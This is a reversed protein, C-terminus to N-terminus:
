AAATRLKRMEEALVWLGRNLKVNGDIGEVGRTHARGRGRKRIGGRVLNEQARQFTTWLSDDKDDWRRPEIAQDARIPPEKETGFRVALAARAFATQEGTTLIASKMADKQEDIKDFSKMVEFAGEIVEDQVNGSHKVRIDFSSDGCIAGNACVFRFCGALMQYSSSGDHSNILIIENVDGDRAIQDVHRLRLMHKTYEAKGETRCKGQIAFFPRFGNDRLGNVVDITPIYAYRQSRSEHPANAFVSPAFRMLEDNTLPANSHISSGARHANAFRTSLM